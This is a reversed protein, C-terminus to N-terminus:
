LKYWWEKFFDYLGKLLVKVFDNVFSVYQKMYSISIWKLFLETWIM